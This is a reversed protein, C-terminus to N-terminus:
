YVLRNSNNIPPLSQVQNQRQSGEWGEIQQDRSNNLQQVDLSSNQLQPGLENDQYEQIAPIHNNNQSNQIQQDQGAAVQQIQASQNHNNIHQNLIQADVEIMVFDEGQFNQEDFNNQRNEVQMQRQNIIQEFRQYQNSEPSISYSLQHFRQLMFSYGVGIAPFLMFLLNALKFVSASPQNDGLGIIAYFFAWKMVKLATYPLKEQRKYVRRLDFDYVMAAMPLIITWHDYYLSTSENKNFYSSLGSLFTSVAALFYVCAIGGNLYFQNSHIFSAQVIEQVDNQFQADNSNRGDMYVGWDHHNEQYSDFQLFPLNAELCDATILNRLEESYLYNFDTGIFEGKVGELSLTQGVPYRNEAPLDLYPNKFQYFEVEGIIQQNTLPNKSSSPYKAHFRGVIEDGKKKFLIKMIGHLNFYHSHSNFSMEKQNTSRTKMKALIFNKDARFAEKIMMEYSTSFIPDVEKIDLYEEVLDNESYLPLKDQGISQAAVEQIQGSYGDRMEGITNSDVM